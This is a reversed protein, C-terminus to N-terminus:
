GLYTFVRAVIQWRGGDHVLSLTDFFNLGGWVTAVRAVATDGSIDVGHIEYRSAPQGGHSAGDECARIFAELGDWELAGEFRGIIQADAHFVGRLAAANGENMGQVYTEIVDMILFLATQRAM